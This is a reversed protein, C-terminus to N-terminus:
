SSSTATAGSAPIAERLLRRPLPGTRTTGSASRCRPSPSPASWSARRARPGAQRRRRLGRGGHGPRPGPDRRALGPRDPQRGHLLRHHRHRRRDVVPLPRGQRAPLRLRLGRRWRRAPRPRHDAAGAPRPGVRSRAGARALADIYKASTGFLTRARGRAYDFLMNGTPIFPRATTSCCRRRARWRGLGALEVDDLRLHHLLLGPRGAQVDCQLQLEKLHQLLTGGIGHVICKPKGTTGSSYM